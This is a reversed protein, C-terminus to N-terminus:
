AKKVIQLQKFLGIFIKSFFCITSLLTFATKCLLMTPIVNRLQIDIPYSEISKNVKLVNYFSVPLNFCLRSEISTKWINKYLFFSLLTVYFPEILILFLKDQLFIWRKKVAMPLAWTESNYSCMCVIDWKSNNYKLRSICLISTPVRISLWCACASGM